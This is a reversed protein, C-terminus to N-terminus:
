VKAVRKERIVKETFFLGCSRIMEGCFFYMMREQSLSEM